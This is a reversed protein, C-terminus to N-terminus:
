DTLDAASDVVVTGRLRLDAASRAVSEGDVDALAVKIGARGLARAIGLGIGRGAGTVLAVAQSSEAHM